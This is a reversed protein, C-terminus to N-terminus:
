VGIFLRFVVFAAYLVMFAAGQWRELIRRKGVYLSFFLLATVAVAMLADMANEAGFPLPSIVASVGLIWFVNFISSGVVNGVAIDTQGRRAAVASTFLEPLSTGVAVLTLGIVGESLGFGRALAVAGDVTFRGGFSLALLGVVAYLSSQGVTRDAIDPKPADLKAIGVTYYLFIAFFALLVLGDIRDIVSPNGTLRGDSGMLWVLAVALFALPIEKWITDRRLTLPRIAAALGLILLINAINSGVINGIAVEARGQFAAILNVVLEPASTGFAVITLGIVIPAVGFRKALSSAGDVLWDAGKLLLLLGSVVLLVALGM